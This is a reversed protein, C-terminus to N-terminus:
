DLVFRVQVLLDIDEQKFTLSGGDDDRGWVVAAISTATIGTSWGLAEYLILPHDILYRFADVGASRLLKSVVRAAQPSGMMKELFKLGGYYVALVSAEEPRGLMQYATLTSIINDVAGHDLLPQIMDIGADSVVDAM